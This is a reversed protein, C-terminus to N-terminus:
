ISIVPGWIDYEYSHAKIVLFSYDVHGNHGEKISKSAM